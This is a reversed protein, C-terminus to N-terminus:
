RKRLEPKITEAYRLAADAFAYGERSGKPLLRLTWQILVEALYCRIQNM